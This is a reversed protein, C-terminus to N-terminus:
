SVATRVLGCRSVHSYTSCRCLGRADKHSCLFRKRLIKFVDQGVPIERSPSATGDRRAAWDSESSRERGASFSYAVLVGQENLYDPSEM